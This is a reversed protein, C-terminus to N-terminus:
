KSEVPSIPLGGAPDDALVDSKKAKRHDQTRPQWGPPMLIYLFAERLSSAAAIDKVLFVIEGFYLDVLSGPQTPRTVGYRPPISEIEDQFTGFLRDWIPLLNCYNKDIYEPNTAHHVRHHMPAMFIRGFLAPIRGRHWAQDSVHIFGGWLGDVVSILVILLMPVGLSACVATKVFVMYPAQFFFNTGSVALNMDTPAHHPSHICWLLRVKHCSWHSIFHGLEWIVYGYLFGVVSVSVTFPPLKSFFRYALFFVDIHIFAGLSFNLMAVLVPVKYAHSWAPLSRYAYALFAMELVMLAPLSLSLPDVIDAITIKSAAEALANLATAM